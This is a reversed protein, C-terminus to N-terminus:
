DRFFEEGFDHFIKGFCYVGLEVCDGGVDVVVRVFSDFCGGVCEFRMRGIDVVNHAGHGHLKLLRVMADMVYHM